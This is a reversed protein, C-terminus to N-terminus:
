RQENVCAGARDQVLAACDEASCAGSFFRSAAGKWADRALGGQEYM